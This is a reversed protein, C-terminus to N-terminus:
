KRGVGRGMKVVSGWQREMTFVSKPEMLDQTIILTLWLLTPCHTLPRHRRWDWDGPDLPM